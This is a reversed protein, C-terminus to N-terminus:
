KTLELRGLGPVSDLKREAWESAPMSKDLHNRVMQEYSTYTKTRVSPKVTNALWTNLFQGLTQKRSDIPLGRQQDRLAETLRQQVDARTKGTFVKRKWLVEGTGDPRWGLSVAARWRGDAMKYISGENQGRRKAM